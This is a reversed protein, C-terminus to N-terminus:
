EVGEADLRKVLELTIGVTSLIPAFFVGVFSAILFMYVLGNGLALWKHKKAVKLSHRVKKCRRELVFDMNGIGAYYSQVIFILPSVVIAAGPILLCLYLPIVIALELAILALSLRIGRFFIRINEQLTPAPYKKGNIAYEVKESLPSLFNGLFIIIVYRLTFVYTGALLLATLVGSTVDVVNKGWSWRWYSAVWDGTRDFSFYIVAIIIVMFLLSILGPALFYGWLRRKHIIQIAKIYALVGQFIDKIM